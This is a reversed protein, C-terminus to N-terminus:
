TASPLVPPRAGAAAWSLSAAQCSAPAVQHISDSQSSDASCTSARRLCPGGCNSQLCRPIQQYALVLPSRAQSVSQVAVARASSKSVPWRGSCSVRAWGAPEASKLAAAPPLGEAALRCGVGRGANGTCCNRWRNAAWPPWCRANPPRAGRRALHCHLLRHGRGLSGADHESGGARRRVRGVLPERRRDPHGRGRRVPPQHGRRMRGAAGPNRIPARRHFALASPRM